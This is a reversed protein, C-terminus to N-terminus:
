WLTEAVDQELETCYSQLCTSQPPATPDNLFSRIVSLLCESAADVIQHGCCPCEVLQGQEFHSMATADRVWDVPAVPDLAGALHLTPVSSSVPTTFTDSPYGTDVPPQRLEYCFGELWALTEPTLLLNLPSPPADSCAQDMAPLTWHQYEDFCGVVLRTAECMARDDEVSGSLLRDLELAAEPELRAWWADAGGQNSARTLGLLLAALRPVYLAGLLRQAYDTADVFTRGNPLAVASTELRDVMTEIEGGFGTPAPTCSPHSACAEDFWETNRALIAADLALREFEQRKERFLPAERVVAHLSDPAQEMVGLAVLTGHSHTWLDAPALGLGAVLDVVDGAMELSNYAGPAVAGEDTVVAGQDFQLFGSHQSGRQELLLLNRALVTSWALADGSTVREEISLGPGGELRVVTPQSELGEGVYRAYLLTKTEAGTAGAARSAPVQLYGCSLGVRYPEPVDFPCGTSDPPLAPGGAAGSEAGTGGEGATGAHNAVGGQGAAGGPWM